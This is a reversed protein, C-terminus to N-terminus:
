IEDTADIKYRQMIDYWQNRMRQNMWENMWENMRKYMWENM